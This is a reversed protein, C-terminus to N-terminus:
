PCTITGSLTVRNAPKLVSALIVGNLTVQKGSDSFTPLVGTKDISYISDSGDFNMTSESVVGRLRKMTGNLVVWISDDHTSSCENMYVRGSESGTFMAYTSPLPSPTVPPTSASCASLTLVLAGMVLVPSLRM